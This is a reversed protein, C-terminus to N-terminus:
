AAPKGQKGRWSMDICNLKMSMDPRPHLAQEAVAHHRWAEGAVHVAHVGLAQDIAGVLSAPLSSHLPHAFAGKVQGPLRRRLVLM